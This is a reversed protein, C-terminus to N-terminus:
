EQAHVAVLGIGGPGVHVGIVPTVEGTIPSFGPPIFQATQDKFENLRDQAATHLYAVQELPKIEELISIIRKISNKFTIVRELKLEGDHMIILPKINLLRGLNYQPSNIRGGRHIFDLTNLAAFSWTRERFGNCFDSIEQLTKRQLNAKAAALVQLGIGLSIQGSDVIRIPVEKISETAIQALNVMNSLSGAIHISLIGEAGKEILDLYKKRIIEVGPTSTTPHTSMQPLQSYFDQRNIDVGDRLSKGEINIYLPIVEIGYQSVIEQPLDCASDTVIRIDM